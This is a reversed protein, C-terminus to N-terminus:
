VHEHVAIIEMVAVASVVVVATLQQTEDCIDFHRKPRPDRTWRRGVADTHTKRWFQKLPLM